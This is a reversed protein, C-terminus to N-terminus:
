VGEEPVFGLTYGVTYKQGMKPMKIVDKINGQLRKLTNKYDGGLGITAVVLERLHALGMGDTDDAMRQIQEASVNDKVLYELYMKRAEKIPPNLGIVLDFRGPRKILRDELIDPKNTTALHIINNVQKEGDLFSLVDSEQEKDDMM